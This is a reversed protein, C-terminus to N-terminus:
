THGGIGYDRPGPWRCYSWYGALRAQSDRSGRRVQRQGYLPHHGRTLPLKVMSRRATETAKRIADIIENAKGLGVGVRGKGDGAAVIANFSFRRGGKVVKAVRNIHITQEIFEPENSKGDFRRDQRRGQSSHAM